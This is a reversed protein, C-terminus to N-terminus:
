HAPTPATTKTKNTPHTFPMFTVAKSMNNHTNTHHNDTPTLGALQGQPQGYIYSLINNKERILKLM